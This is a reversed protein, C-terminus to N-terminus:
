LNRRRKASPPDRQPSSGEARCDAVVVQNRGGDKAQYLATDARGVLENASEGPQWQAVGISATVSLRAEPGEMTAIAKRLREALVAASADDAKPALVIFEEGGWRAVVDAGRRTAQLTAATRRLMEDGLLHGYTDNIVKFDDLDILLLSFPDGYRKATDIQATLLADFHRRNPLNTLPDTRLLREIKEARKSLTRNARGLAREQDAYDETLALLQRQLLRDLEVDRECAVILYAGQRYVGGVWTESEGDVNGLTMRGTFVEGGATSEAKDLLEGFGPNIFLSCVDQASPAKDPTSTLSLFGRNADMVHGRRDLVALLVSHLPHLFSPIEPIGESGNALPANM